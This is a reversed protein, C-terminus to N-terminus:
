PRAASTARAPKRFRPRQRARRAIKGHVDVGKFDDWNREPATVGYGVFVLPASAISVQKQGNLPAIVAIDPGQRLPIVTGNENLSIQPTGVIQSQLLPVAQFWSRKGNALDGGPQVGGGCVAQRHLQHRDARDGGGTGRGQFADSSLTKDVDSLRQPSFAGAPAAVIPSRGCLRPRERRIWRLRNM